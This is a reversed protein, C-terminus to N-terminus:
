TAHYADFLQIVRYLFPLPHHSIGFRAESPKITLDLYSEGRV